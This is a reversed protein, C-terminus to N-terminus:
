LVPVTAVPCHARHLLGHVVSGLRMGTYGGEGRRGVVIGLTHEGAKALVEVPSGIQVDHHVPVDPYQKEWRAVTEYLLRRQNHFLTDGTRLSFVPPQWVALAYLACGRLVAEEFALALAANSPESGDVGVVLRSADPSGAGPPDGVVVVPCRAQATVPIVVSASSLIEEARHLHRSGLVVLRVRHSLLALQRGPFGDLLSGTIEIDPWRGQTWSIAAELTRRGERSLTWHHPADDVHQTDHLPPVSLALRLHLGRLRAEDAGWTAAPHWDGRPDVGVVVEQRIEASSM